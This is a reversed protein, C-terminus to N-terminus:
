ISCRPSFQRSSTLGNVIRSAGCKRENGASGVTNIELIERAAVTVTQPNNGKKAWFILMSGFDVSDTIAIKSRGSLEGDVWTSRVSRFKTLRTRKAPTTTAIPNSAQNAHGM